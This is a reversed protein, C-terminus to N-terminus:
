DFVEEEMMRNAKDRRELLLPDYGEYNAFYQLITLKRNMSLESGIVSSLNANTSPSATPATPPSTSTSSVPTGNMQARRQRQRRRNRAGPTESLGRQRKGNADTDGLAGSDRQQDGPLARGLNDITGDPVVAKFYKYVDSFNDCFKIWETYENEADQNGSQKYNENIRSASGRIEKWMKECWAGDRKPRSEDQPNINYTYTALTEMGANPEYPNVPIGNQHQITANQYICLDYNNFNDAIENWPAKRDDPSDLVERELPSNAETLAISNQPDVMAHMFRARDNASTAAAQQSQENGAAEELNHVQAIVAAKNADSLSNFYATAKNRQESNLTVWKTYTKYFHKGGPLAPGQLTALAKLTYDPDAQPWPHTTAETQNEM